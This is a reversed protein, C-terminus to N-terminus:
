DSDVFDRWEQVLRRIGTVRRLLKNVRSIYEEWLIKENHPLKNQELLKEIEACVREALLLRRHIRSM